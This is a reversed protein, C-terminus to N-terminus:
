ELKQDGLDFDYVFVDDVLALVMPQVALHEPRPLYANRAAANVFTMVFGADFGKELGEPSCSPGWHYSTIGPIVDQLGAIAANLEDIAQTEADRKMKFFVAHLIM